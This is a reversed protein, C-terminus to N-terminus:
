EKDNSSQLVLTTIYQSNETVTTDNEKPPVSLEETVFDQQESANLTTATSTPSICKGNMCDQNGKCYENGCIDLFIIFFQIIIGILINKIFIM